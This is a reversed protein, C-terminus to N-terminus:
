VVAIKEGTGNFGAQNLPLIDYIVAYDAPGVNHSGDTFTIDPIPTARPHFDHLGTIALVLPELAAPLSPATSNAIHREGGVVYEHISTRFASQVTQVTGRFVILNRSAPVEVIKFGQSELWTYITKIDGQSFGFRQGFQEPTLWRHYQGSAPDQQDQLLRDLAAQQEASRKLVLTIPSILRSADAPGQDYQEQALPHIHGPLLTALGSELSGKLRSEQSWAACPLLCFVVAAAACRQARSIMDSQVLQYGIM